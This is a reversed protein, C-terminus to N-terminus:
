SHSGKVLGWQCLLGFLGLFLLCTGFQKDALQCHTDSQLDDSFIFLTIYIHITCEFLVADM